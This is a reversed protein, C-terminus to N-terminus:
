LSRGGLTDGVHQATMANSRSGTPTSAASYRTASAPRSSTAHRALQHALGPGGGGGLPGAEAESIDEGSGAQARIGPVHREGGRRREAARGAAARRRRSGPSYPVRRQPARGEATALLPM